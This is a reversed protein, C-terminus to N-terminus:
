PRLTDPVTVGAEDYYKLAGPHLLINLGSFPAAPDLDRLFAASDQIEGINDWFAKTLAYAKEDSVDKNVAISALYKLTGSDATNVQGEYTNAPISTFSRGPISVYDALKAKDEDSFGLVRIPKSLGFEQLIAAGVPAVRMLVDVQGNRMAQMGENWPARMSEYDENPEMGTLLRIVEETDSGAGGGGPGVYVRKGRLEEFNTIGTEEWTVMQMAAAGFEILSRIEKSAAKAQDSIDKYPGTGTQLRAYQGVIATMMEIDGKALLLLSRIMKQGEIVQVDVGADEAYRSLLKMTTNPAAGAGTTHARLADAHAGTAVTSSVAIAAAAILSQIKKPAILKM